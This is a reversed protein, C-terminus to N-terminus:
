PGSSSLRELQGQVFEQSAAELEGDVLRGMREERAEHAEELLWTALHLTVTEREV